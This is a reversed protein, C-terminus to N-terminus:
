IKLRGKERREEKEERVRGRDTGGREKGGTMEVVGGERKEGKVDSREKRM